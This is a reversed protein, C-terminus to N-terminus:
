TGAAKRPWASLRQRRPQRAGFLACGGIDRLIQRVGRSQLRYVTRTARGSRSRLEWVRGDRVVDCIALLWDVGEPDKELDLQFESAMTNLEAWGDGFTVELDAAPSGPFLEYQDIRPKHSVKVARSPLSSAMEDLAARLRARIHRGYETMM